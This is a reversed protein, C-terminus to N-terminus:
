SRIRSAQCDPPTLPSTRPRRANMVSYGSSGSRNGGWSPAPAVPPAGDSGAGSESAEGDQPEQAEQPEQPEEPYETMFALRGLVLGKVGGSQWADLIREQDALLPEFPQGVRMWVELEAM